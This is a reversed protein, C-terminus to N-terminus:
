SDVEIVRDFLVLHDYLRGFQSHTDSYAFGCHVIGLSSPITRVVRALFEYSMAGYQIFIDVVENIAFNKQILVGFGCASVDSLDGRISYSSGSRIPIEIQIEIPPDLKYRANKRLPRTPL